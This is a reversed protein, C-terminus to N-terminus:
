FTTSLSKAILDFDTRNIEFVARRFQIGWNPMKIFSLQDLLPRIPTPEVELYKVDRRWPTFEDSQKAKYAEGDQVQGLAVFSQLKEKGAFTSHPAYYILWDNPQLRKIPAHKGHGLQCFGERIGVKVHDHSAVGIWYQSAKNM